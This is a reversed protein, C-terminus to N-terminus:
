GNTRESTINCDKITTNADLKLKTNKINEKKLNENMIDMAISLQKQKEERNNEQIITSYLTAAILISFLFVILYLVGKKEKTTM